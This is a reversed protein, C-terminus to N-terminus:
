ILLWILNIICFKPDFGFILQLITISLIIIIARRYKVIRKQKEFAFNLKKILLM